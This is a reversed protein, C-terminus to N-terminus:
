ATPENPATQGAAFPVRRIVAADRVPDVPAHTIAALAEVAGVPEEGTGHAVLKLRDGVKLQEYIAQARSFERRVREIKPANEIQGPTFSNQGGARAAPPRIPPYRTAACAEITLSRPAIMGALEADGFLTLLGWVNRYIPEQWVAERTQFYGCVLARE